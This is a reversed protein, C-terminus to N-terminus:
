RKLWTDGIQMFLKGDLTCDQMPVPIGYYEFRVPATPKLCSHAALFLCLTGRATKNLQSKWWTQIYKKSIHSLIKKQKLAAIIWLLIINGHKNACTNASKISQRGWHIQMTDQSASVVRYNGLILINRFSWFKTRLQYKQKRSSCFKIFFNCKSWKKSKLNWLLINGM